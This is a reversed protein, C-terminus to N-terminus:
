EPVLLQLPHFFDWLVRYSFKDNILPWVRHWNQSLSAANLCGLDRLSNRMVRKWWTVPSYLLRHGTLNERGGVGAITMSQSGWECPLESLPLGPPSWTLFDYGISGVASEYTWPTLYTKRWVTMFIDTIPISVKSCCPFSLIVFLVRNVHSTPFM